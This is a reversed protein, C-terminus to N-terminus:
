SLRRKEAMTWAKGYRDLLPKVRRLLTATEKALEDDLIDFKFTNLENFGEGIETFVELITSMTNKGHEAGLEPTDYGGTEDLQEEKIIKKVLKEIDKEDLKIVKKKM